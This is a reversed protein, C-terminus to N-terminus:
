LGFEPELVVEGYPRVDVIWSIDYGDLAEKTIIINVVVHTNRPLSGLDSMYDSYLTGNIEISTNYNRVDTPDEYRGELLYVPDFRVKESGSLAQNCAIYFDEYVVDEPVEFDEDGYGRPLFYEKDAAKSITIGSIELPHNTKNEVTYTFKTAARIIDLTAYHDKLPMQVQHLATMPLNMPIQDSDAADVSIELESVTEAPFAAGTGLSSFDYLEKTLDNNENAILYISKMENGVVLFRQTLITVSPDSSLDLYRNHEVTGDPRVIIIRLANMKEGDAEPDEYGKVSPTGSVDPAKISLELLVSVDEGNIIICDNCGALLMLSIFAILIHRLNGSM